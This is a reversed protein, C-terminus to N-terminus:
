EGRSDFALPCPSSAVPNRQAKPGKPTPKPGKPVPKQCHEPSPALPAPGEILTSPSPGSRAPAACDAPGTGCRFRGQGVAGVFDVSQEKVVGPGHRDADQFPGPKAGRRWRCWVKQVKPTQSFGGGKSGLVGKRNCSKRGSELTWAPRSGLFARRAASSVTVPHVGPNYIRDTVNRPTRKPRQGQRLSRRVMPRNGSREVAKTEVDGLEVAKARVFQLAQHCAGIQCFRWGEVSQDSDRGPGHQGYRILPRRAIDPQARGFARRAGGRRHRSRRPLVPQASTQAQPGTSRRHTIKHGERLRRPPHRATGYPCDLRIETPTQRFANM